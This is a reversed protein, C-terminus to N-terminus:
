RDKAGELGDLLVTLSPPPEKAAPRLCLIRGGGHGVGRGVEREIPYPGFKEPTM